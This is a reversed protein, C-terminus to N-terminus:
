SISVRPLSSKTEMKTLLMCWTCRQQILLHNIELAGTHRWHMSEMCWISMHWLAQKRSHSFIQKLCSSTFHEVAVLFFRQIYAWDRGVSLCRRRLITLETVPKETNIGEGFAFEEFTIRSERFRQTISHSKRVFHDMLGSVTIPEHPCKSHASASTADVRQMSKKSCTKCCSDGWFDWQM